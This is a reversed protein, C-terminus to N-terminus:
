NTSLREQIMDRLKDIDINFNSSYYEKMLEVKRNLMEKGEDLNPKDPDPELYLKNFHEKKMILFKSVLECFDEFQDSTGYPTTMGLEIAEDESLNIWSNGIYKESGIEEFGEPIGHKQHVIYTFEHHIVQLQALLWEKNKIDYQNLETLTIRVGAEAYGQTSTGDANMLSSGVCIIEPPFHQKIFEEGGESVFPELWYNIIMKGVPIMVERKPPSVYYGSVVHSDDWKWRVACNFPKLFHEYFWIDIEDTLEVEPDPKYKEVEEKTCSGSLIAGIWLTCAILIWHNTKM